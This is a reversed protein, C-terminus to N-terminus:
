WLCFPPNTSFLFMLCKLCLVKHNVIVPHYPKKRLPGKRSQILESPQDTLKRIREYALLTLLFLFKGISICLELTNKLRRTYKRWTVTGARKATKSHYERKKESFVNWFNLKRKQKTQPLAPSPEILDFDQTNEIFHVRM